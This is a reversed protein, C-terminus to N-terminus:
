GPGWDGCSGSCLLYGPQGLRIPRKRERTRARSDRPQLRAGPILQLAGPHRGGPARLPESRAGPRRPWSSGGGRRAGARRARPRADAGAAPVELAGPSTATARSCVSSFGQAPAAFKWGKQPILGALTLVNYNTANQGTTLSVTRAPGSLVSFTM